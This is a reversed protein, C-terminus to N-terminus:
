PGKCKQEWEQTCSTKETKDDSYGTDLKASPVHLVGPLYRNLLHISASSEESLM